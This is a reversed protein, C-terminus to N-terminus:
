ELSMEKFEVRNRGGEKAKYLADDAAKIITTKPTGVQPILNTTGVSITIHQTKAAKSLGIKLSEVIKRSEEGLFVVGDKKTNPLIAAFEDGGYRCFLDVPRKFVAKVSDAIKKLLKDGELHGFLDNFVKFNDVDLILLAIPTKERVALKWEQELHYNFKRRNAVGTLEDTVSIKKLKESLKKYEERSEKLARQAKKTKKIQQELEINKLRFIEAEKEKQVTKYKIELEAIQKNKLKNLIEEKLKASETFYNLAKKYHGMKDYMDTLNMTIQKLQNRSNIKKAYKYSELLHSEALDYKQLKKYIEGLYLLCFAIGYKDSIEEFIKKAKNFYEIAEETRNKKYHLSGLNTYSIGITRKSGIKKKIELAKKHNKLAQSYKQQRTYINGINAYSVALPAKDELDMSLELSKNHYELAKDDDELKEYLIGINNYLPSIKRKTNTEKYYNLAELYYQLAKDFDAIREYIAGINNKTSAIRNEDEIEESIKITKLYNELAKAYEGRKHLSIGIINYSRAINSNLNNKKALKLAKRAIKESKKPNSKSYEYALDNILKVEKDGDTSQLEKELRKIKEM